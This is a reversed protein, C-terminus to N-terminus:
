GGPPANKKEGFHRKVLDAVEAKAAAEGMCKLYIDTIAKGYEKIVHLLNMNAQRMMNMGAQLSAIQDKLDQIDSFSSEDSM